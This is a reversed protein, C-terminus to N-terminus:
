FTSASKKAQISTVMESTKLADDYNGRNWNFMGLNNICMSEIKKFGHSRSMKLAKEFYYRASDSKGMVDMYIGHTNTLETIGFQFQATEALQKGEEIVEVAKTLNNFIYGFGIENYM